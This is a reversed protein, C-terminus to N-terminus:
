PKGWFRGWFRRSSTDSHIGWNYLGCGGDIIGKKWARKVYRRFKWNSMGSAHCDVAGEMRLYFIPRHRSYDEGGVGQNHSDCRVGCHFIIRHEKLPYTIGEEMNIYNRLNQIQIAPIIVFNKLGESVRSWECKGCRCIFENASINRTLDGM